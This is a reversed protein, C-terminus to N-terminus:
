HFKRDQHHLQNNKHNQSSLKNIRRPNVRIKAKSITRLMLSMPTKPDKAEAQERAQTQIKRSSTLHPQPVMMKRRAGLM